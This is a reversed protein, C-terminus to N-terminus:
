QPSAPLLTLERAGTAQSRLGWGRELAAVLAAQDTADFSGNVRIAGLSPDGLRLQTDSYRNFEEVLTALPEDLFELRGQTWGLARRADIHHAASVKGERGYSVQQLPALEYGLDEGLTRVVVRGEILSVRTEADRRDVQFVTGLARVTGNGASIEFPRDPNRAVHAHVRGRHLVIARRERDYAVDLRTDADLTLHSGDPLDLARREGAATQYTQPQQPVPSFALWAATGVALALAAALAVHTPWRRRPAAVPVPRTRLVHVPAAEPIATADHDPAPRLADGLTGMAQHWQELRAYEIANAPDAALWDEFAAHDARGCEPSELRALWGEASDPMPARVHIVNGSM